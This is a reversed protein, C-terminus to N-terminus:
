EKKELEAKRRNLKEMQKLLSVLETQEAIEYEMKDVQEKLPTSKRFLPFFPTGLVFPLVMQTVFLLLLAVMVLLTLIELAAFM